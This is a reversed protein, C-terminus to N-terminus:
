KPPWGILDWPFEAAASGWLAAIVFVLAGLKKIRSM